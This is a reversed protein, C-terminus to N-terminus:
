QRAARWAEKAQTQCKPCHRNRCSHYLYREYGCDDCSKVHGGLAATRCATIRGIVKRHRSPLPHSRLFAEGHAALIDALEISRTAPAAHCSADGSM